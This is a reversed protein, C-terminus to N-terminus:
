RGELARCRARLNAYDTVLRSTASGAPLGRLEAAARRQLEPRYVALPPCEVAATRPGAVDCWFILLFGVCTM